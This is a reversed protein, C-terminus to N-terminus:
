ADPRNGNAAKSLRDSAQEVICAAVQNVGYGANVRTQVCPIGQEKCANRIEEAQGHGIIKTILVVLDVGRVSNRVDSRRDGSSSPVWVVDALEFAERFRRAAEPKGIGGVFAVKKGRLWNAVQAVDPSERGESGDFEDEEASQQLYEELYRLAEGLEPSLECGDNRPAPLADAAPLLAERLEPDSTKRECRVFEEVKRSLAKWSEPDDQEALKAAAAAIEDLLEEARRAKALQQDLAHIRKELDKFAYPDARDEWRMYREIRVAEADESVVKRLWMFIANQEPIPKEAESTEGFVRVANQAEALLNLGRVLEERLAARDDGRREIIEAVLECCRVLNWYVATEVSDPDGNGNPTATEEEELSRIRDKVAEALRRIEATDIPPRADATGPETPVLPKPKLEAPDLAASASLPRSFKASLASIQEPTARGHETGTHEDVTRFWVRGRSVALATRLSYAEAVREFLQQFEDFDTTRVTSDPADETSEAVAHVLGLLSELSDIKRQAEDSFLSEYDAKEVRGDLWALDQKPPTLLGDRQPLDTDLLSIQRLRDVLNLFHSRLTEKSQRINSKLSDLAKDVADLSAEDDDFQWLEAPLEAAANRMATILERRKTDLPTYREWLDPPLPAGHEKFAKFAQDVKTAFAAWNRRLEKAQKQLSSITEGDIRSWRRCTDVSQGQSITSDM